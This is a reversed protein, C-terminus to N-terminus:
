ALNIAAHVKPGALVQRFVAGDRVVEDVDCVGALFVTEEAKLLLAERGDGTDGVATPEGDEAAAAPEIEIGHQTAVAQDLNRLIGGQTGFKGTGTIGFKRCLQPLQARLEVVGGVKAVALPQQPRDLDGGAFASQSGPEGGQRLEPGPYEAQAPFTGPQPLADCEAQAFAQLLPQEFLHGSQVRRSNGPLAEFEEAQFVAKDGPVELSPEIAVIHGLLQGAGDASEGFALFGEESAHFPLPHRDM